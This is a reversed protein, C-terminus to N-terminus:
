LNLLTREGKIEPFIDYSFSLVLDRQWLLDIPEKLTAPFKTRHLKLFFFSFPLYKKYSKVRNQLQPKVRLYDTSPIYM